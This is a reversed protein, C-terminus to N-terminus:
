IYYGILYVKLGAETAGGSIADVDITIESENLITIEQDVVEVFTSGYGINIPIDGGLSSADDNIDVTTSGSTTGAVSLSLRLDTIYFDGFVRFTAVDTTVSLATVEDSCAIAIERKDGLWKYGNYTRTQQLTKDYCKSGIVPTIRYWDTGDYYVHDGNSAGDFDSHPLEASATITTEDLTADTILQNTITITKLSNDIATIVFRGLHESNTIGSGYIYAVNNVTSYGSLDPSGSFSIKVSTGTTWEIDTVVLVAVSDDLLYIDGTTSSPQAASSDAYDLASPLNFIDYAYNGTGDKYMQGGVDAGRFGIPHHMNFDNKDMNSHHLNNNATSETISASTIAM